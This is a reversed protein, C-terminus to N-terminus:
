DACAQWRSNSRLALLRPGAAGPQDIRLRHEVQGPALAVVRATRVGRQQLQGLRVQAEANSGFQGLSLGPTFEAVGSFESFPLRMRRLEDAKRELQDRDAFRGMYLMWRGPKERRIDLWDGTRLGAQLLERQATAVDAESLTTTQLCATAPNNAAAFAPLSAASAPSAASATASSSAASAASASSAPAGSAVGSAAVAAVGSAAASSAAAGAASNGSGTATNGGNARGAAVAPLGESSVVRLADANIQRQLRYPESDGVAPMGLADRVAPQHGAWFLLNALLLLLIVLRLM